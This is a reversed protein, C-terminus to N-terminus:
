EHKYILYVPTKEVKLNEFPNNERMKHIKLTLILKFLKQCIMLKKNSLFFLQSYNKTYYTQQTYANLKRYEVEGFYNIVAISRVIIIIRNQRLIHYRPKM